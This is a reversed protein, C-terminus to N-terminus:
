QQAHKQEMLFSIIEKNVLDSNTAATIHNGNNIIKLSLNEVLHKARNGASEYNYIVEKNGFILLTPTKIRRLEDDSFVKPFVQNTAKGYKLLLYFLRRFDP